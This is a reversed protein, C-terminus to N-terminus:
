GLPQGRIISFSNFEQQLVLATENMLDDQSFDATNLLGEGMLTIVINNFLQERKTLMTEMTREMEMNKVRGKM